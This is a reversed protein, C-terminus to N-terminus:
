SIKRHNANLNKIPLEFFYFSIFSIIILLIFSTIFFLLNQNNYDEMYALFPLKINKKTNWHLFSNLILPIFNHFLYLGYSIRGISVLIPNGLSFPSLFINPKVIITTLIGVISISIATRLDFVLSVVGFFSLSIYISLLLSPILVYYKNRILFDRKYLQFFALIGGAAFSQMCTVTLLETFKNGIYFPFLNISVIGLIFSILIAPLLWKRSIFLIVWPWILYFQEEVALSWLHSLKGGPWSQNIYFLINQLYLFYWPWDQAVPNPLFNNFLILL